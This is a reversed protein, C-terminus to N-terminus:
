RRDQVRKSHKGGVHELRPAAKLGLIKEAMLAGDSQTSRWRAKV